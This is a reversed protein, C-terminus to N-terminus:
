DWKCPLNYITEAFVEFQQKLNDLDELQEKPLVVTFPYVEEWKQFVFTFTRDWKPCYFHLTDESQVLIEPTAEM